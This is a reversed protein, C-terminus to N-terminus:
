LRKCIFHIQRELDSWNKEKNKIHRCLEEDILDPFNYSCCLGSRIKEILVSPSIVIKKKFRAHFRVHESNDIIYFEDKGHIERYKVHHIVEINKRVDSKNISDM